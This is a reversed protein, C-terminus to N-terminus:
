ANAALAAPPGSETVVTAEGNAAVGAERHLVTQMMRRAMFTRRAAPDTPDLPEVLYQNLEREVAQIEPQAALHPAVKAIDGEIEMVRVVLDGKMFVTTGLLRTDEDIELKPAAYGSLLEAVATETGPRVRFALAHRKM